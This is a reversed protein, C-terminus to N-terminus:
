CLSCEPGQWRRGSSRETQFEFCLDDGGVASMQEHAVGVAGDDAGALAHGRAPLQAQLEAVALGGGRATLPFAPM